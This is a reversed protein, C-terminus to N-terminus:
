HGVLPFARLFEKYRLIYNYDLMSGGSKDHCASGEYCNNHAGLLASAIVLLVAEDLACRSVDSPWNANQM